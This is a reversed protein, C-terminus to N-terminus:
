LCETHSNKNWHSHLLTLDFSPIKLIALFDSFLPKNPVAMYEVLAIRLSNPYLFIGKVNYSISYVQIMSPGGMHGLAMLM